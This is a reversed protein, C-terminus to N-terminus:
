PYLVRMMWLGACRSGPAEQLLRLRPYSQRGLDGMVEGGCSRPGFLRARTWAVDRADVLSGIAALLDEDGSGSKMWMVILRALRPGAAGGHGCATGFVVVPWAEWGGRRWRFM